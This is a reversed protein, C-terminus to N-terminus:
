GIINNIAFNVIAFSLVCIAMGVLGYIITKKGKETKQTEGASTMYQVGGIIIVVVCAFSLIAIVGNLINTVYLKLNPDKNGVLELGPGTSGSAFVRSIKESIFNNINQM